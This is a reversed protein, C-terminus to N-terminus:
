TTAGSEPQLTSLAQCPHYLCIKKELDQVRQVALEYEMSHPRDHESPHYGKQYLEELFGM